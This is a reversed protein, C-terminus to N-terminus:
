GYSRRKIMAALRKESFRLMRGPLKVVPLIDRHDKVWRATTKGGLREAVQEATLLSDDDEQADAPPTMLRAFAEAKWRELDGILNPLEAPDIAYIVEAIQKQLDELTLPERAM